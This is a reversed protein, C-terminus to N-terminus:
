TYDVSWRGKPASRGPIWMEMWFDNDEMKRTPDIGIDLMLDYLYQKTEPAAYNDMYLGLGLGVGAGILAGALGARSGSLFGAEILGTTWMATAYVGGMTAITAASTDVGRNVMFQYSRPDVGNRYDVVGGVVTSFGISFYPSKLTNMFLSRGTGIRAENVYVPYDALLDDVPHVLSNWMDKKAATLFQNPTGYGPFDGINPFSTKMIVEPVGNHNGAWVNFYGRHGQLFTGLLGTAATTANTTFSLMQDTLLPFPLGGQSQALYNLMSPMYSQETALRMERMTQSGQYWGNMKVDSESALETVGPVHLGIEFNPLYGGPGGLRPITPKLLAYRPAGPNRPAPPKELGAVHKEMQKFHENRVAQYEEEDKRRM